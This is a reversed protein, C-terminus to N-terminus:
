DGVVGSRPREPLHPLSEAAREALSGEARSKYRLGQRKANDGTVGLAEAMTRGSVSGDRARVMQYVAVLHDDSFSAARGQPRPSVERDPSPGRDVEPGTSQEPHVPAEETDGQTVVIEAVQPLKAHWLLALVAFSGLLWVPTAGATLWGEWTPPAVVIQLVTSLAVSAVLLVWSLWLVARQHLRKAELVSVEMALALAETGLPWLAPIARGGKDAAVVMAGYSEALLVMTIVGVIV